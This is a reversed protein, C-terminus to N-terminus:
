VISHTILPFLQQSCLTERSLTTTTPNPHFPPAASNGGGCRVLIRLEEWQEAESIACDKNVSERGKDCPLASPPGVLADFLVPSFCCM